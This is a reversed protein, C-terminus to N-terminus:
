MLAECHSSTEGVKSQKMLSILCLWRHRRELNSQGRVLYLEQAIVVILEPERVITTVVCGFLRGIPAFYVGAPVLFPVTVKQLNVLYIYM